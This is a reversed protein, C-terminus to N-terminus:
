PAPPALREVAGALWQDQHERWFAPDHAGAYLEFV